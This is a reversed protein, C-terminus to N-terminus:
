PQVFTSLDGDTCQISFLYKIYIKKETTNKDVNVHKFFINQILKLMNEEMKVVLNTNWKQNQSKNLADNKLTPCETSSM